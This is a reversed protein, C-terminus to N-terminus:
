SSHISYRRIRTYALLSRLVVRYSTHFGHFVLPFPPFLTQGSGTRPPIPCSTEWSFSRIGVSYTPVFTTLLKAWPLNRCMSDVLHASSSSDLIVYITSRSPTSIKVVRTVLLVIRSNSRFRMRLGIPQRITIGIVSGFPIVPNM